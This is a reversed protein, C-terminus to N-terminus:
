VGLTKIRSLIEAPDRAILSGAEKLASTKSAATEGEGEIIAGAHGMRAGKPAASGVILSIVPKTMDKEILAAAEHEMTGGVEGLMVVVKTDPDEEFM